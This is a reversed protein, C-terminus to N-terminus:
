YVVLTFYVDSSYLGAAHEEYHALSEPTLRLFVDVGKLSWSEYYHSTTNNNGYTERHLHYSPYIYYTNGTSVGAGGIDINSPFGSFYSASQNELSSFSEYNSDGELNLYLDYWITNQHTREPAGETGIKRFMYEGSGSQWDSTPSIYVKYKVDNTSSPVTDGTLMNYFSLNAVKYAGPQASLGLDMSYTDDSAYVIYNFSSDTPAYDNGIYGWITITEYLSQTSENYAWTGKTENFQYYDRITYPGGSITITTYYYGPELTYSSADDPLSVVVDFTRRYMQHISYIHPTPRLDYSYSAPSSPLYLSYNNGTRTFSVRAKSNGTHEIETNAPKTSLIMPYSTGNSYSKEQVYEGGSDGIFQENYIVVLEYPIQASPNNENVFYGSTQISLDVSNDFCAKTAAAQTKDDRIQSKMPVTKHLNNLTDYIRFLALNNTSSSNFPLEISTLTKVGNSLDIAVSRNNVVARPLYLLGADATTNVPIITDAFSFFPILLLLVIIFLLISKKM